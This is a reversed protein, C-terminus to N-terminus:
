GGGVSVAVDVEHQPSGDVASPAFARVLLPGPSAHLTTDFTGRAPAGQSATVTRREVVKGDRVAEVALTAEFVSATGRVHFTQPVQAGAAPAEVFIPPMYSPFDDRTLGNRGSVDVRAVTPLQTLSYVIEAVQADTAKALRVKATGGSVTVPAGVRRAGLVATAVDGTRPVHVVVPRLLGRRVHFVTVTQPPPSVIRTTTPPGAAHGHGGCGAAALGTAAIVLATAKV